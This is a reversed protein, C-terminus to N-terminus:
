HFFMVHCSTIHCKGQIKLVYNETSFSSMVHCSIIHCVQMNLSIISILSKYHTMSIYTYLIVM